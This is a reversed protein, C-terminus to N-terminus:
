PAGHLRMREKFRTDTESIFLFVQAVVTYLEPPISKGLEIMSLAQALEPDEYVPIENEEAMQLIREAIHGQGSAVVTPAGEQDPNYRLAAATTKKKPDRPPVPM